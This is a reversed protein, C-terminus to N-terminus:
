IGGGGGGGTVGPSGSDGADQGRKWCEVGGGGERRSGSQPPLLRSRRVPSQETSIVRSHLVPAPRCFVSQM